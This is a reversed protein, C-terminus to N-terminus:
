YIWIPTESSDTHMDSNILEMINIHNSTVRTILCLRDGKQGRRKKVSWKGSMNKGHSWTFVRWCNIHCSLQLTHYVDLHSEICTKFDHVTFQHRCPQTIHGWFLTLTEAHKRSFRKMLTLFSCCNLKIKITDIWSLKHESEKVHLSPQTSSM